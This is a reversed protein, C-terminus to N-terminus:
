NRKMTKSRIIFEDIVVIMTMTNTRYFLTRQLLREWPFPADRAVGCPRLSPQGVEVRM